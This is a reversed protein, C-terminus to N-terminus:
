TIIKFAVVNLGKRTTYIDEMDEGEGKEEMMM